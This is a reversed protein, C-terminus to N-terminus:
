SLPILHPDVPRYGSCFLTEVPAVPVDTVMAAALACDKFVRAAASLRYQVATAREAFFSEGWLTVEVVGSQLADRIEADIREDTGLLDAAIAVGVSQEAGSGISLLATHLEFTRVGLIWLPRADNDDALLVNVDWGAMSRDFLWGGVSQVVDAVDAAIVNLQYRLLRSKVAPPRDPRVRPLNEDANLSQTGMSLEM